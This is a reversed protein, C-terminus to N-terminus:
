AAMHSTCRDGRTLRQWNAIASIDTHWNATVRMDTNLKSDCTLRPWNQPRVCTQTVKGDGMLRYTQMCVYNETPKGDHTHRHWKSLDGTYMQKDTQLWVYNPPGVYTQTDTQLWAYTQQLTCDCADRYRCDSMLRHWCACMSRHTLKCDNTLRVTQREMTDIELHETESMRIHSQAMWM